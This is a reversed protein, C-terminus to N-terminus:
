HKLGFRALFASGPFACPGGPSVHVPGGPSVDGLSARLIQTHNPLPSLSDGHTEEVEATTDNAIAEPEFDFREINLSHRRKKKKKGYDRMMVFM